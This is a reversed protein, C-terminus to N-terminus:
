KRSRGGRKPKEPETAQGIGDMVDIEPAPLVPDEAEPEEEGPEELSDDEKPSDPEAPEPAPDPAVPGAESKEPAKYFDDPLEGVEEIAGIGLLRTIQATTLQEEIVEGPYYHVNRSQVHCKATYVKM